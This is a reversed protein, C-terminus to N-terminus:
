GPGLGEIAPVHDNRKQCLVERRPSIQALWQSGYIPYYLFVGDFVKSLEDVETAVRSATEILGETPSINMQDTTQFPTTYSSRERDSYVLLYLATLSQNSLHERIDPARYRDVKKKIAERLAGISWNPDYLGGDPIVSIWAHDISVANGSDAEFFVISAVYQILTPYERLQYAHAEYSFREKPSLPCWHQARLLPWSEDIASAVARFEERFAAYDRNPIRRGRKPCIVASRTHLPRPHKEADLITLLDQRMRDHGHGSRVQAGHLWATLELGIKGVGEQEGLFDPPDSTAPLLIVGGLFPPYLAIVSQLVEREEQQQIHRSM